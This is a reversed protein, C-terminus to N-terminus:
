GARRGTSGSRLLPRKKDKEAASEGTAYSPYHSPYYSYGSSRGTPVGNLVVGLLPVRLRRLQNVANELAEQDTKNARVVVLTGDVLAAVLAGDTVALLPPTDVVVYDYIARAESMFRDFAESGILETPNQQGSGCPIIDLSELDPAPHAAEEIEVTGLLVDSLGPAQEFGFTTHVQPRRLDSDILLTRSGQEALTLALNAAVTSKGDRPTASTVAIV